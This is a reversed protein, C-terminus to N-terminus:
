DADPWGPIGHYRGQCLEKVEHPPEEWGVLDFLKTMFQYVIAGTAQDEEFWAEIDPDYIPGLKNNFYNASIGLRDRQDLGTIGICCKFGHEGYGLQTRGFHRYHTLAMM